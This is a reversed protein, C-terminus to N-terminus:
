RKFMGFSSKEWFMSLDAGLKSCYSSLDEVVANAVAHLEEFKVDSRSAVFVTVGNKREVNDKVKVSGEVVLGNLETQKICVEVQLLGNSYPYCVQDQGTSPDHTSASFFLKQLNRSVAKMDRGSNTQENIIDNYAKDFSRSKMTTAGNATKITTEKM